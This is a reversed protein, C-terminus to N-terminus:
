VNLIKSRVSFSRGTQTVLKQFLNEIISITFLCLIWQLKKEDIFEKLKAVDNCIVGSRSVLITEDDETVEFECSKSEFYEAVYKSNQAIAEEARPEFIRNGLNKRVSQLNKKMLNNSVDTSNQIDFVATHPIKKM